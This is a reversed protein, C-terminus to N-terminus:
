GEPRVSRLISAVSAATADATVHVTVEEGSGSIADGPRPDGLKIRDEVAGPGPHVVWTGVARLMACREQDSSRGWVEAVTEGTPEIVVRRDSPMALADRLARKASRHAAYAQEEDEESLDARLAKEAAELTVQALAVAEARAADDDIMSAVVYERGGQWELFTREIVDDAKSVSISVGPEGPVHHRMNCGYSWYEVGQRKTPKKSLRRMCSFCLLAAGYGDQKSWTKGLTGKGAIYAQLRTWEAMSLLAADPDIRPVGNIMVVDRVGVASGDNGTPTMGALRPNRLLRSFGTKGLGTLLMAEAQPTGGLVRDIAERLVEAHSRAFPPRVELDPRIVLGRGNPNDVSVFGFPASGVAHRGEAKFAELSELRREAVIAAELEAIAGLLTLLFRGMPGATDIAQDVFVITAGADEIRQVVDLLDRVSRAIRDIKTALVRDGPQLDALLRAGAERDWLAVKAGSVSRDEYHVVEAGGFADIRAKQKTISGSRKTDNSIREYGRDTM